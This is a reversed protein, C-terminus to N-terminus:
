STGPIKCQVALLTIDDFQAACDIHTFVDTKMRELLESASSYPRDALNALVRKGTFFEGNPSRADTLGDTYGFLIDGPELQVKQIKFKMNPMMGVAPGTSKLATKIGTANIILPSEHGGNIYTLLGTDPNLVGFFLTAFMGTEGHEESIYNNTIEVAQLAQKQFSDIDAEIDATRDTSERDRFQFKTGGSFLRIFSRFLGMFMAAGVGKDCVDAIVLGISGNPLLFVDYFDGAVKKAPEFTACIEWNPVTLIPDPIFNRQLKQGKEIDTELENKTKNLQDTREEVLFELKHTYRSVEAVMANFAEGLQQLEDNSKVEVAVDFNHQRIKESAQYLKRIPKVLWNSLLSAALLSVFLSSGIIQLATWKLTDVQIALSSVDVDLNLIAVVKGTDDKLPVTTSIYADKKGHYEYYYQIDVKPQGDFAPRVSPSNPSYYHGVYKDNTVKTSSTQYRYGKDSALIRV